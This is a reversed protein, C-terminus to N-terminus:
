VSVPLDMALIWVIGYRRTFIYMFASLNTWSSADLLFVCANVKLRSDKDSMHGSLADTATRRVLDASQV